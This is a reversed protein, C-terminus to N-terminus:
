EGQGCHMGNGYIKIILTVLSNKFSKGSDLAETIDHGLSLKQAEM